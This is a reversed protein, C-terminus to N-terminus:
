KQKSGRQLYTYGDLGTAYFAQLVAAENRTIRGAKLGARVQREIRDILMHKKFQVTDLVDAVTEGAIMQEYRWTGTHLLSDPLFKPAMRTAIAVTAMACALGEFFARRTLKM